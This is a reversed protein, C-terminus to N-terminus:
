SRYLVLGFLSVIFPSKPGGGKKSRRAFFVPNHTQRWINFVNRCTVPRGLLFEAAFMNASFLATAKFITRSIERTKPTTDFLGDELGIACNVFAFAAQSAATDHFAQVVDYVVSTADPHAAALLREAFFEEIESYLTTLRSLEYLKLVFILRM